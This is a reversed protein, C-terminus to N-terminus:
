RLLKTSSVIFAMAYVLTIFIGAHVLNMELFCVGLSLTALMMIDLSVILRKHDNFSLIRSNTFYLGKFFYFIIVVKLLPLLENYKDDFFLNLIFRGFFHLSLFAVTFYCLAIALTYLFQLKHNDLKMRVVFPELSNQFLNLIPGLISVGIILMVKDEDSITVSYPVIFVIFIQLINSVSLTLSKKWSDRLFNTYEDLFRFNLYLINIYNKSILSTCILPLFTYTIFILLLKLEFQINAVLIFYLLPIVTLEVIIQIVAYSKYRSQTLLYNINLTNLIGFLITISIMYIYISTDSESFFIVIVYCVVGLLGTYFAFKFLDGIQFEHNKTGLIRLSLQSFSFNTAITAFGVRSSLLYFVSLEYPSLHVANLKGKAIGSLM